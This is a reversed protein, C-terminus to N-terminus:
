NVILEDVFTCSSPVRSGKANFRVFRARTDLPAGFEKMLITPYDTAVDSYIKAVETFDTGNDSVSITVYEPLQIGPGASHMYSGGAYRIPKVEGLDVILDVSKGLFGQWRPDGHSWGGYQGDTLTKDGAAEYKDWWPTNYIVKAGKALHNVPRTSEPREGFEDALNFVNYGKAKMQENKALARRHFDAYDKEPTSWGIEAIAYARPYYMYEAHSDDTVYETWLNGQVGKLHKAAMEPDVGEEVPEYSYAKELPLYNGISAPERFPADQTFDFYCFTGPTMVVDHGSNVSKIGAETGRWSMVAANPAVGGELIEDWGIIRRGKSNVYREIRKILYSQLEDVNQLGEEKMRRQCDPCDKWANKSAEDGGIHILESPFVDMTEDLVEELFKFTAEKGPCFDGGKGNCSLEPYAAVVEDSHGPMEIEPIVTIHHRAAYDVLDRMEEHTYYGGYAGPATSECYRAGNKAWERWEREPRWAAYEQLRPYKDVEFRWGAGDTLHLHMTNLKLAAMADIQKKLFEVPRFHRSVDFHLGRYPFRPTDEIKECAIGDAGGADSLALLTQLGYYLGASDAATITARKPTIDLVYSEAAGKGTVRTKVNAMDAAPHFVGKGQTIKTPRPIIDHGSAVDALVAAPAAAMIAAAAATILAFKSICNM